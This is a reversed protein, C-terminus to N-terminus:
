RRAAGQRRQDGLREKEAQNLIQQAVQRVLDRTADDDILAPVNTLNIEFSGTTGGTSTRTRGTPPTTTGEDTGVDPMVDDPAVDKGLDGSKIKDLVEKASETQEKAAQTDEELRKKLDETLAGDGSTLRKAQEESMGAKMLDKKTLKGAGDGEGDSGKLDEPKVPKFLDDLGLSGDNDSGIGGFLADGTKEAEDLASPLEQRRKKGLEAINTMEFDTGIDTQEMLELPEKGMRERVRNYGKIIKNFGNIFTNVFGEVWGTVVNIATKATNMFGAWLAEFGVKMAHIGAMVKDRFGWFNTVLAGLVAGLLLLSGVLLGASGASVGLISAFATTGPVAGWAAAGATTFAGALASLGPVVATTMTTALVGLLITLGTLLGGALIVTGAMGDTQKNFSRFSDVVGRVLRVLAGLVPTLNKGTTIAVTNLESKLLSLQGAFTNIDERNEAAISGGEKMAKNVLQQAETAGEVDKKLRTFARAGRKGIEKRFLTMVEDSEKAAEALSLLTENPNADRMQKFEETTVGLAKAFVSVNDPNLLEEGLRRMSGAARRSSPSVANLAGALGIIEDTKLGLSSLTAGSRTVSDVLEQTNVRASNSLENFGDALTRVNDLPEGLSAAVKALSRGAEDAALTTASGTMAATKAFERLEDEGEAGFRSAQAALEAVQSASLRTQTAIDKIDDSLKDAVGEGAVKRLEVLSDQYSTFAGVSAAIGGASLATLAGGVLTAKKKFADLSTMADSIAADFGQTTMDLAVELREFM